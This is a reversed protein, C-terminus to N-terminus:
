AEFLLSGDRHIHQRQCGASSIVAGFSELIADPGLAERAVSIVVPNAYVAPDRFAGALDIPVMHRGDGVKLTDELQWNDLYRGFRSMFHANLERVKDEALVHDLIAYGNRVLCEYARQVPQAKSLDDGSLGRCDIRIM